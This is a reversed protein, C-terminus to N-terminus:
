IKLKLKLSNKNDRLSLDMKRFKDKSLVSFRLDNPFTIGNVTINFIEGAGTVTEESFDGKFQMSFFYRKLNLGFLKEVYTRANIRFQNNDFDFASYENKIRFRSNNEKDTINIVGNKLIIKFFLDPQETNEDRKVTAEFKVFKKVQKKDMNIIFEELVVTSISKDVSIKGTIIDKIRIRIKITDVHILRRSSTDDYVYFDKIKVGNFFLPSIERFEIKRNLVLSIRRALSLKLENIKYSIILYSYIILGLLVLLILCPVLTNIIKYKKRM